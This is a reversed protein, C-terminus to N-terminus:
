DRLAGQARLLPVTEWHEVLARRMAPPAQAVVAPWALRARRIGDEVAEIVWRAPPAGPLAARAACRELAAQNLARFERVGGLKLGLTPGKPTGWGHLDRWAVTSVYDYVPSLTPRLAAGWCFSWNKLHADDNGCAIVFGLRAAFARAEDPGALDNVLRLLTDYSPRAQGADAYKFLPLLNLAQCFDEHHIRTGDPRRDFRSIAFAQRVQDVWGAPVGDLLETAVVRVPPVPLGAAAAWNMTAHEVQPLDAYSAGPIKVIWYEGSEARVPLTLRQGNARMSLKIQMGALSFRWAQTPAADTTPPASPLDPDHDGLPRVEVAGPLDQGLVTLLGLSDAERLGHTRCIRERLASGVEPLLNEFWPPLGTGSVQVGPNRLFELGLRPTQNTALWAPEPAWEVRGHRDRTLTGVRQGPLHVSLARASM